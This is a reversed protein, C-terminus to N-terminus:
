SKPVLAARIKDIFTSRDAREKDLVAKESEYFSSEPDTTSTMMFMSAGHLDSNWEELTRVVEEVAESVMEPGGNQRLLLMLQNQSMVSAHTRHEELQQELDEVKKKLLKNDYVLDESKSIINNIANACKALLLIENM